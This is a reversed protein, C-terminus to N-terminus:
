ATKYVYACRKGSHFDTESGTYGDETKLAMLRNEKIRLFESVVL